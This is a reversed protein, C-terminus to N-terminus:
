TRGCIRIVCVRIASCNKKGNRMWGKLVVISPCESKTRISIQIPRDSVPSTSAIRRVIGLVEINQKPFNKAEIDIM